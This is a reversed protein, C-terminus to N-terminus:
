MAYRHLHQRTTLEFGDHYDTYQYMVYALLITDATEHGSVAEQSKTVKSNIFQSKQMM